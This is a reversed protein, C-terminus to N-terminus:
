CSVLVAEGLEQTVRALGSDTDHVESELQSRHCAVQEHVKEHPVEDQSVDDHECEDDHVEPRDLVDRAPFEYPEPPPTVDSLVACLLPLKLTLLALDVLGIM